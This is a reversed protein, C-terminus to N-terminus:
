LTLISDEEESHRASGITRGSMGYKTGAGCEIELHVRTYYYITGGKTKRSAPGGELDEILVTTNFPSRLQVTTRYVGEAFYHRSTTCPLGGETKVCPAGFRNRRNRDSDRICIPTSWQMLINSFVDYESSTECAATTRAVEVASRQLFNGVRVFLCFEGSDHSM